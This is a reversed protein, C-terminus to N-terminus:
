ASTGRGSLVAFAGCAWCCVLPLLAFPMTLGGMTGLNFRPSPPGGFTVPWAYGLLLDGYEPAAVGAASLALANAASLLGLAALLWRAWGRPVGALGVCLFPLMPVVHRPGSSAGGSWLYYSANLLIFYAVVAAALGLETRRAVQARWFRLLGWPALALVPSIYLLGRYRGFLTGYLASLRPRTVGFLGRSQGAAFRSQALHGYGLAWPRGFARWAYGVYLSAVPAAGVIVRWLDSPRRSRWLALGVVLVAVVAAPYESISAFVGLAGAAYLAAPSPPRTPEGAVLFFAGFLCAAALQHGYFATSYPFAITGLGYIAGCLTALEHSQGLRRCYRALLVGTAAGPLGAAFIACLYLAAIFPWNVVVRDQPLLEDSPVGAAYIVRANPRPRRTLELWANFVSYPVVGVFSAGPAKDCLFRDGVLAKDGTNQHYADISVSGREVIARVLDLRSNENWGNQPFFYLYSLVMIAALVVDARVLRVLKATITDVLPRPEEGSTRLRGNRARV